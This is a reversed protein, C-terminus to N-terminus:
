RESKLRTNNGKM